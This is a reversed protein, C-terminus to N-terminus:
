AVAIIVDKKVNYLNARLQRPITSTFFKMEKIFHSQDYYGCQHSISMLSQGPLHHLAYLAKRFKVIRMYDKPTLDFNSMFSRVLKKESCKQLQSLQKLNIDNHNTHIHYISEKLFCNEYNKMNSLLFAEIMTGRDQNDPTNFVAEFFFKSGKGFSETLIDESFIYTRLPFNFFHYYGLPTFDICIEDLVGSLEFLHPSLYMASLYSYIGAKPHTAIIGNTNCYVQSDKTIGLCINTNAFSTIQKHLLPNNSYNFLIYQVHKSLEKNKIKYTDFKM